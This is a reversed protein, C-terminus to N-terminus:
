KIQFLFGNAPAFASPVTVRSAGAPISVQHQLAGSISFISVTRAISSSQGLDLVLRDGTSIFRVGNQGAPLASFISVPTRATFNLTAAQGLTVTQVNGTVTDITGTSVVAHILVRYLANGAIMNVFDYLGNADTTTSDISFYSTAGTGFTTQRRQLTLKAGAIVVNAPTATRTITGGLSATATTMVANLTTNSGFVVTVSTDLAALGSDSKYGTAYVKVTNYTAASLSDAYNGFTDTAVSDVKVTGLYFVVSAGTKIAPNGTAASKITGSVKGLNKVLALTGVTTTSNWAAAISNAGSSQYKASVASVSYGTGTGVSDFAYNGSSDTYVSIPADLVGGSLTVIASDIPASNSAAIVRGM